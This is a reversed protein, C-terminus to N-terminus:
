AFSQENLVKISISAICKTINARFRYLSHFFNIPFHELFSNVCSYDRLSLTSVRIRKIYIMDCFRLRLRAIITNKRLNFYMKTVASCATSVLAARPRIATPGCALRPEGTLRRRTSRTSCAPSGRNLPPQGRNETLNSRPLVTCELLSVQM